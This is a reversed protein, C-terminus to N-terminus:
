WRSLILISNRGKFIYLTNWYLYIEEYVRGLIKEIHNGVCKTYSYIFTTHSHCKLTVSVGFAPFLDSGCRYQVCGRGPTTGKAVQAPLSPSHPYRSTVFESIRFECSVPARQRQRLASFRHQGVFSAARESVVSVCVSCDRWTGTEDRISSVRMYAVLEVGFCFVFSKQGLPTSIDWRTM